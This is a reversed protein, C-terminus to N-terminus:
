QKVIRIIEPDFNRFDIRFYWIGSPLHGLDIIVDSMVVGKAALRGSTDYITYVAAEKIGSIRVSSIFPNPTAVVKSQIATPSGTSVPKVNIYGTKTTTSNHTPYVATLSVDYIGASSYIVGPSSSSTNVQIGGPFTWQLQDPDGSSLDIFKVTDGASILTDFTFLDAIRPFTDCSVIRFDDLGIYFMNYANHNVGVYLDHNGYLSSPIETSCSSWITDGLTFPDNDAVAFPPQSTFHSHTNGTTSFFIQYGDRKTHDPFKHKWHLEAGSAPITVPGFILWNNAQGPAMFLSTASVFHNAGGGESFFDWGSSINQHHYPTLSDLDEQLVQFATQNVPQVNWGPMYFDLLTDCQNYVTIAKVFIRRDSNTGDSVELIVPYQGSQSYLIQAPNKSLSTAPYGGFFHWKYSQVPVNSESADFFDIKGGTEITNLSSTYGAIPLVKIYETKKLTDAVTGDSVVLMVDYIGGKTYTVAPPQQGQYFSPTGGSFYWQWATINGTSISTFIVHTGIDVKTKDATFSALINNGAPEIGIIAEQFSNYNASGLPNLASLMFYGDAIGSWGWNCHFYDTGSYGDLVWAHGSNTSQDVGSYFVPRGNDIESRMMNKWQLDTHSNKTVIQATSKYGFYSTLATLADTIGTGSAFPGYNMQSAVGAHWLLRAVDPNNNYLADPMTAINYTTAAFNASLTGYKINYYSKSGTGQLPWKHYKMIQALTTAVCGAPARACFYAPATSDAPCSDNYYCRQDWKSSTLPTVGTTLGTPTANETKNKHEAIGALKMNSGLEMLYSQIMFEMAPPLDRSDIRGKTSYATVVEPYDKGTVIIFGEGCMPVFLFLAPKNNIEWVREPYKKLPIDAQGDNAIGSIFASARKYPEDYYKQSYSFDQFFVIFFLVLCFRVTNCNMNYTIVYFIAAKQAAM